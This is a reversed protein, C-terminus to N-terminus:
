ITKNLFSVRNYGNSNYLDNAMLNEKLKNLELLLDKKKTKVLLNLNNDLNSLEYKNAIYRFVEKEYEIEDILNIVRQRELFLNNIKEFKEDEISKILKKTIESFEYLLKELKLEDM